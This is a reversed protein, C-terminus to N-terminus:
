PRAGPSWKYGEKSALTGVSTSRTVMNVLSRACLSPQEIQKHSMDVPHAHNGNEPYHAEEVAIDSGHQKSTASIIERRAVMLAM